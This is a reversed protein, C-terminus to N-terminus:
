FTFGLGVTGYAMSFSVASDSQNDTFEFRKLGFGAEGFFQQTWFVKGHFNLNYSSGASKESSFSLPYYMFEVDVYKPHRMIPVLNFFDDIFKPMSRAWYVGGGMLDASIQPLGVREYSLALGFLEDRNWLGRKVNYKFDVNAVSLEDVTTDASLEIAQLAQFYRASVGWRQVSLLESRSGFFTEFWASAALEGLPIVTSSGTSVGTLRASAEYQYTRYLSHHSVWQQGSQNTISLHARNESGKKPAAFTWEFENQNLLRAKLETSSANTANPAFGYIRPSKSYTGGSPRETIYVRDGEAPLKDYKFLLTFPINFAGRVRVTPAERPITIQWIKKFDQGTEAWFHSPPLKVYKIKGYPRPGEGTIIISKKDNSAVVDLLHLTTPQSAIDITAGGFFVVKLTFPTGMPFNVTGRLGANQDNLLVQPQNKIRRPILGLRDGRSRTAFPASCIKLHELDSNKQNICFRYFGGKWLFDFENRDIDQIGWESNIHPNKSGAKKQEARWNLVSAESVNASWLAKGDSTEISLTGSRTLLIPWSFSLTTVYGEKKDSGRSWFSTETRKSQSIKAEISSAPIKYGNLNILIGKSLMWRLQPNALHLGNEEPAYFLPYTYQDKGKLHVEGPEDASGEENLETSEETGTTSEEISSDQATQSQAHAPSLFLFSSVAFSLCLSFALSRRAHENPAQSNLERIHSWINHNQISGVHQKKM